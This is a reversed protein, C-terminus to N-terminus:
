KLFKWTKKLSNLYKFIKAFDNMYKYSDKETFFCIFGNLLEFSTFYIGNKRPLNMNKTDKKELKVVGFLKEM